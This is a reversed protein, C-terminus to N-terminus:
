KNRTKNLQSTTFNEKEKWWQKWFIKEENPECPLMIAFAWTVSNKKKKFKEIQKDDKMYM